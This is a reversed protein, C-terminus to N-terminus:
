IIDRCHKSQSSESHCLHASSCIADFHANRSNMGRGGTSRELVCLLACIYSTYVSCDNILKTDECRTVSVTLIDSWKVISKYM